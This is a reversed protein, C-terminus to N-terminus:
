LLGEATGEGARFIRPNEINRIKFSGGGRNVVDGGTSKAIRDAVASYLKTLDDRAAVFTVESPRVRTILDNFHSFVENIIKMGARDSMEPIKNAFPQRKGTIASTNDVTFELDFSVTNNDNRKVMALANGAEGGTDFRRSLVGSDNSVSFSDVKGTPKRGFVGLSNAPRPVISGAGGVFGALDFARQLGEDSNPDVRGAFVDGPLTAASLLGQGINQGVGLLGAGLDAQPTLDEEPDGGPSLLGTHAFPGM